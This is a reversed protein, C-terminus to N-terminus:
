KKPLPHPSRDRVTPPQTDSAKPDCLHQVTTGFLAAYIALRSPPAEHADGVEAWRDKNFDTPDIQHQLLLKRAITHPYVDVPQISLFHNIQYKFRKRELLFARIAFFFHTFICSM